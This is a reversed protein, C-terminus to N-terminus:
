PNPDEVAGDDFGESQYAEKLIDMTVDAAASRDIETEPTGSPFMTTLVRPFIHVFDDTINDPTKM